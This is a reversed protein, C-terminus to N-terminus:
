NERGPVVKWLQGDLTTVLLEGAIDTGFSTIRGLRGMDAEWDHVEPEEAEDFSLSRVWGLCFDGFFYHGHIEPIRSGRYVSGGVVACGNGEHLYEYDPLRTGSLDCSDAELCVTGEAIAWGFNLGGDELDVVNIEESGAQGVDPIFVRNTELDIHIRWPNRVGYGWVEPAGLDTGVFPNDNPIGYPHKSDNIRIISAKITHPNQSHRERATRNGGDGISVWMNAEGDFAISGSQHYQFEQPIYLIRRLTRRDIVPQEVGSVRGEMLVSTGSFDTFFLFVRCNESFDPHPELTLLGQENSRDLILDQIDLVPEEIRAGDRVVVVRGPKESVLLSQTGPVPMVDTPEELDDVILQASLGDSTDASEQQVPDAGVCTEAEIPNAIAVALGVSIALALAAYAAAKM